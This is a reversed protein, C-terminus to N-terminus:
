KLMKIIENLTKGKTEPIYFITYFMGVFTFIAFTYFTFGLGISEVIIPFTFGLIFSLFFNLMLGMPAVFKKAEEKFIEGLLTFTVPSIGFNFALMYVCLSALPLWQIKSTDFELEKLKFFTGIGILGLLVLVFSVLLLFKKGFKDVFATALFTAFLGLVSVILSSLGPDINVGAEQFITTAYYLVVNIGGMQLFIFLMLIITLARFTARDSLVEKFNMQNQINLNYEEMENDCPTGRLKKLENIEGTTKPPFNRTNVTSSDPLFFFIGAYVIPIVTCFINITIMDFFYGIIFILVIGFNLNVQFISLLSGRINSPSIEGVYLPNLMGFCSISVGNLFRAIMLQPFCFFRNSPHEQIRIYNPILLSLSSVM